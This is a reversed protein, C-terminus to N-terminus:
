LISFADKLPGGPQGDQTYIFKNWATVLGFPEAIEANTGRTLLCITALHGETHLPMYHLTTAFMELATGKPAFFIEANKLSYSGDQVDSRKGLVLLCDRVMILAESCQHYEMADAERCYGICIGAQFPMGGFVDKAIQQICPVAELEPVSAIYEGGAEPPTFIGEYVNIAESVDKDLIVGYDRFTEHNLELIRIGPNKSRIEDLMM